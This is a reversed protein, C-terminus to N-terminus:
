KLFFQYYLLGRQPILDIISKRVHNFGKMLSGFAKHHLLPQSELLTILSLFKESQLFILTNLFDGLDRIYTYSKYTHAQTYTHTHTYTVEAHSALM